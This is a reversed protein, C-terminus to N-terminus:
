YRLQLRLNAAGVYTSLPFIFLLLALLILFYPQVPVGTTMAEVAGVGFILVPVYLPFMLVARLLVNRNNGLVITAGTAGIFSLSPLGLCLSGALITIDGVPMGFVLAAVVALLVLPFDTVINHSIAKAIIVLEMPTQSLYLFELTGDEYDSIFSHHVSLASALLALVWIVGHAVRALISSETGIALLFLVCALIFFGVVSMYDGKQRLSQIAERKLLLWILSM